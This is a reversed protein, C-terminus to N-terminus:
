VGMGAYQDNMGTKFLIVDQIKVSYATNLQNPATLESYLPVTFSLATDEYGPASVEVTFTFKKLEGEKKSELSEVSFSYNGQTSGFTQAPNLWTVDTMQAPKENLKLLIKAGSVPEFTSGDYVTGTFRPFNFLCRPEKEQRASKNNRHYPRKASSVLRMGEIALKEIDAKVQHDQLIESSHTFGRGSVIYHPPIRNLVYNATDMRCNECSCSVGAAALDYLDNVRKIVIDEMLNHINLM